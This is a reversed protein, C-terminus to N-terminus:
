PASTCDGGNRWSLKCWNCERGTTPRWEEDARIIRIKDDIQGRADQVEDASFAFSEVHLPIDLYVFDAERKDKMACYFLGQMWHDDYIKGSKWDYVKELEGDIKGRAWATPDDFKAPTWDEFVAVEGEAVLGQAKLNKMYDQWKTLCSNGTPYPGLDKFFKELLDHLATGREAAAGSPERNGHIYAHAWKKPCKNYLSMGSYSIPRDYM